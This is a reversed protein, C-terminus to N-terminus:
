KQNRISVCLLSLLSEFNVPSTIDDVWMEGKRAKSVAVSQKEWCAEWTDTRFLGCFWDLEGVMRSVLASPMWARAERAEADWELTSWVIVGKERFADFKPGKYQSDKQDGWTPDLLPRIDRKFTKRGLNGM